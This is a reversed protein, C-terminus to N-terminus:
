VNVRASFDCYSLISGKAYRLLQVRVLHLHDHEGQPIEEVGEAIGLAYRHRCYEHEDVLTAADPEDGQLGASTHRMPARVGLSHLRPDV